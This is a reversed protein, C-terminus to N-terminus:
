LSNLNSNKHQKKINTDMFVGAFPLLLRFFSSNEIDCGFLSDFSFFKNVLLFTADFKICAMKGSLYVLLLSFEEILPMLLPVIVNTDVLAGLLLKLSDIAL